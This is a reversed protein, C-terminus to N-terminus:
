YDKKLYVTHPDEVSYQKGTRRVDQVINSVQEWSVFFTNTENPGIFVEIGSPVKKLGLGGGLPSYHKRAEAFDLHNSEVYRKLLDDSVDIAPGPAQVAFYREITITGDQDRISGVFLVLDNTYYMEGTLFPWVLVPKSGNTQYYLEARPGSDIGVWQAKVGFGGSLPKFDSKKDECGQALFIISVTLVTLVMVNKMATTMAKRGSDSGAKQVACARIRPLGTLPPMKTALARSFRGLETLLPMNQPRSARQNERSQVAQAQPM